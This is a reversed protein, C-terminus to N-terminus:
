NVARHIATHFNGNQGALFHLFERVLASQNLFLIVWNSVLRILLRPLINPNIRLMTENNVSQKTHYRLPCRM